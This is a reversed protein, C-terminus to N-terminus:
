TKWTTEKWSTEGSFGQICREEMRAVDGVWRLRKSKIMRIINPSYLAYLEKNRLRRVV